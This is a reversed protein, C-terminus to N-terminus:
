SLSRKLKFNLKHFKFYLKRELCCSYDFTEQSLLDSAPVESLLAKLGNLWRM